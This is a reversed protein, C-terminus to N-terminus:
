VREHEANKWITLDKMNKREKMDKVNKWIRYEKMNEREKMNKFKKM